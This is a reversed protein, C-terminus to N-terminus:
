KKNLFTRILEISEYPFEELMFHGADFFHIEVEKLDKQYAAGGAKSFYKDHEGWLVLTKPQYTQLYDQWEEYKPFNTGYNNFLSSQIRRVNKRDLFANDTLYSIPDIRTPHKSGATYQMKVGEESMLYTKFDELEEFQENEVYGGIRQSWEGLGEMYTNANQIILGQIRNPNQSAIRMGIPGGYDQMMLYFKEIGLKNIFDETVKAINDFTYKFTDASPVESLGFGPYDPAIVHYQASLGDIIKRFMHSSSPFGHLMVITEAKPNGAERYFISVGDVDIQNHSVKYTVESNLFTEIVATKSETHSLGQGMIFHVTALFIIVIISKKMKYNTKYQLM